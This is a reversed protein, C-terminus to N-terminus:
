IKRKQLREIRKKRIEEPSLIDNPGDSLRHGLQLINIDNEKMLEREKKENELEMEKRYCEEEYQRRKELLEEELFKNRIDVEIDQNIINFCQIDLDEIEELNILEWNPQIDNIRFRYLKDNYTFSIIQTPYMVSFKSLKEELITEYDEIDFFERELPELQLFKAPPVKEILELEVFQNEELIFIDALTPSIRIESEEASFECVGVFCSHYPTKIKFFFPFSKEENTYKELVSSPLDISNGEQLHDEYSLTIFFSNM